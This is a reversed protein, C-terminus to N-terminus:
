FEGILVYICATYPYLLDTPLSPLHESSNSIDRLITTVLREAEPILASRDRGTPWEPWRTQGHHNM